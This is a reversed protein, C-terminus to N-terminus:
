LSTGAATMDAARHEEGPVSHGLADREPVKPMDDTGSVM